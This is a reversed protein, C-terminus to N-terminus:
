ENKREKFTAKVSIREGGPNAATHVKLRYQVSPDLVQVHITAVRTKGIPLEKATSFAGLVVRERQMAKADYYPANTFAPHEGGEIGVVRVKNKAAAFELQYAALPETGSDVFVDIAQFQAQASFALLCFFLLRM